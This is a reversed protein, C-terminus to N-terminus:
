AILPLTGPRYGGRLAAVSAPPTLLRLPGTPAVPDGLDAFAWPRWEGGARVLPVTAADLVIAGDPLDGDVTHLRRQGPLGHRPRAGTALREGHLTADMAKAGPRPAHTARAWADFYADADSRRCEFCPRHGVALATAEDRFFLGTYARAPFIERHRDKFSTLCIIWNKHNWGRVVNRGADHLTGRNGFATGRDRVAHLAGLPDNRVPSPM